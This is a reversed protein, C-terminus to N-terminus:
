NYFFEYIGKLLKPYWHMGLTSSSFWKMPYMALHNTVHDEHHAYCSVRFDNVWMEGSYTLPAYIGTSIFPTIKTIHSKGETNHHLLDGVGVNKALKFNPAEEEAFIAVLHDQSVELFGNETELRLFLL